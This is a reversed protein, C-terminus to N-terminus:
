RKPVRFLFFISTGNVPAEADLFTVAVNSFLGRSAVQGHSSSQGFGLGTLIEGEPIQAYLLCSIV